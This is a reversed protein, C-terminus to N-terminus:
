RQIHEDFGNTPTWKKYNDCVKRPYFRFLQRFANSFPTKRWVPHIKVNYAFWRLYTTRYALTNYDLTKQPRKRPLALSTAFLFSTSSHRQIYPQRLWRLYWSLLYFRRSIRNPALTVAIKSQYEQGTGHESNSASITNSFYSQFYQLCSCNLTTASRRPIVAWLLIQFKQIWIQTELLRIKTRHVTQLISVPCIKPSALKYDNCALKAFHPELWLQSVDRVMHSTKRRKRVHAYLNHSMNTMFRTSFLEWRQLIATITTSM